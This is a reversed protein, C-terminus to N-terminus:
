GDYFGPPHLGILRQQRSTQARAVAAESVHNVVATPRLRQALDRRGYHCQLFMRGPDGPLPPQRRHWVDSVFFAVDGAQAIIPVVDRGEWQLDNDAMRELPPPQGSTHSGPIVGTPGAELPCDWLYIHTAIAFVPYPIRDDWPVKPDRPIHPGSDIHWFHGLHSDNGSQQWWATNAIVHCDEGLLPEIIELIKPHGITEQVLASRNFMEYRFPAWHEADYRDSREDPAYEDFVRQVDACLADVEASSFIERSVVYGDTQLAESSPPVPDDRITLYGSSRTLVGQNQVRTMAGAVAFTVKASRGKPQPLRDLM